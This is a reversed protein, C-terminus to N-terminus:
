PFIIAMPNARASADFGKRIIFFMESPCSSLFRNPSIFITIKEIVNKNKRYNSFISVKELIAKKCGFSDSETSESFSHQLITNKWFPMNTQNPRIHYDSSQRLLQTLHNLSTVFFGNQFFKLSLNIQHPPLRAITKDTLTKKKPIEFMTQKTKQFWLPNIQVLNM